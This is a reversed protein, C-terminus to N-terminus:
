AAKIDGYFHELVSKKTIQGNSHKWLADLLEKNPIRRRHKLHGLLYSEGTGCRKAYQSLEKENLSNLFELFTM